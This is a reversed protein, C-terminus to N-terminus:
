LGLGTQDEKMSETVVTHEVDVVARSIKTEKNLM